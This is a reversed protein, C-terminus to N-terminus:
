RAPWRAAGVPGRPNAGDWLTPDFGFTKSLPERSSANADARAKSYTWVTESATGDTREIEVGEPELDEVFEAAFDAAELFSVSKYLVEQTEYRPEYLVERVQYLAQGPASTNLVTTVDIEGSEVHFALLVICRENDGPVSFGSVACPCTVDCNCNEFYTGSLQWSM